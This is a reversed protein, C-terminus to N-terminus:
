LELSSLNHRHGTHHIAGIAFYTETFAIQREGAGTRGTRHIQLCVEKRRRKKLDLLNCIHQQEAKGPATVDPLKLFVQILQRRQVHKVFLGSASCNLICQNNTQTPTKRGTPM